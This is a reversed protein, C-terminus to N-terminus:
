LRLDRLLVGQELHYVVARGCDDRLALTGEPGFRVSVQQARDFEFTAVPSRDAGILHVRSGERQQVEAAVFGGSCTLGGPRITPETFLLPSDRWATGPADLRLSELPGVGEVQSLAALGNGLWPEFVPTAGALAMAAQPARSRLTLGPLDYQWLGGEEGGVLFALQRASRTLAMVRGGLDGVRWLAKLRSSTADLAQVAGDIAAFWLSGDFDRAAVGLPAECWAAGTRTALDFRSLRWAEGRPALGIARSGTDSIVLREAPEDFHTVLRGDPTLLHVGAEGLAVLLRGGPLLALDRAVLTGVDGAVWTFVRPEAARPRGRIMASAPPLDVHLTPDAALNLLRNFLRPDAGTIGLARDRVHSRLAARALTATERNAETGALADALARRAPASELSGDDCLEAVRRCVSEYTEPALLVKRVLMSAETAGGLALARELWVRARPRGEAVPWLALVAAAYDGAEALTEAWLVRLARGRMPDQAELQLVASAFSGTRRAVAVARAPEQAVFWQRVVLEPSLQRGEALEAALQLRGHRELFSVSEESAQLLEALVFAAEEIRGARELREVAQRYMQRLRAFLQPGLGLSTPARAIGGTSIALADRPTPVGLAPSASAAGPLASLPIAHRLAADLDGEQFMQMMRALYEAQRQGLLQALRGANLWRGFAARLRALWPRTPRPESRALAVTGPPRAPPVPAAGGRRGLDLAALLRAWWGMAAPASPGRGSAPASPAPGRRLAAVIAALEPDPPPLSFQERGLAIPPALQVPLPPAGLGAVEEVTYSDVELWSCLDAAEGTLAICEAAGGALHVIAGPLSPLQEIERPGLPAASLFGAQRVLPIGPCGAVAMWRPSALRLLWGAGVAEVRDGPSWTALVRLRTAPEGVLTPLFLLGEVRVTGRHVFQEPHVPTV